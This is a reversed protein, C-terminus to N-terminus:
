DIEPTPTATPLRYQIRSLWGKDADPPPELMEIDGGMIDLLARNVLWNLGESLQPLIEPQDEPPEPSRMSDIPENWTEFPCPSDLWIRAEAEVSGASLRLSGEEMGDVATSIGHLLVQVLPKYDARVYLGPEPMKVQFRYNRNAAQLRMLEYVEEFVERLRVAELKLPTRGQEARAVKLVVDLMEVMKLASDHARHLFELEEERNECLDALILQHTGILGNLPSRLEHSVRALFGGKFQGMEAALREGMAKLYLRKELDQCRQNLAEVRQRLQPDSIQALDESSLSLDQQFQSSFDHQMLSDTAPRQLPTRALSDEGVVVKGGGTPSSELWKGGM